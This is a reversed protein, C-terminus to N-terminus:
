HIVECKENRASSGLTASSYVPWWKQMHSLQGSREMFKTMSDTMVQCHCLARARDPGVPFLASRPVVVTKIPKQQDDPAAEFALDNQQLQLRGKKM